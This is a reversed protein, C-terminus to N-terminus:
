PCPAEQGQRVIVRAKLAAEADGWWDIGPTLARATPKQMLGRLAGLTYGWAFAFRHRRPAALARGWSLLATGAYSKVLALRDEIRPREFGRYTDNLLRRSYSTAYGMRFAQIPYSKPTDDHPHLFVANFAFLLAGAAGVRHSLFTDEGLGCGIHTLAFLDESFCRQTLADMRYAMVGGRLWEVAEYARGGRDIPPLRHGSPALGGPAIRRSSGLRSVLFGAGPSRAAHRDLLAGEGALKAGADGMVIQATVGAVDGDPRFLPAVVNAVADPQEIRLDDDLYLLAECDEERAARWGLYRQYALNAHNSPVYVAQMGEPFDRGDLMTRVEGSAPDGDVVVLLDPQLTQNLVDDLLRALLSVRKYTCICLGLKNAYESM